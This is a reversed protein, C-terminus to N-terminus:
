VKEGEKILIEKGSLNTNSVLENSAVTNHENPMNQVEFYIRYIRKM